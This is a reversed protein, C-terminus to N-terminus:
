NQGNNSRSKHCLRVDRAYKIPEYIMLCIGMVLFVVVFIVLTLPWLAIATVILENHNGQPGSMEPWFPDDEDSIMVWWYLRVLITLIIPIIYVLEIM